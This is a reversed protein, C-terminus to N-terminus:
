PLLTGYGYHMVTDLTFVFVTLEISVKAIMRRELKTLLYFVGGAHSAGGSLPFHVTVGIVDAAIASVAVAIGVIAFVEVVTTNRVIGAIDVVVVIGVLALDATM